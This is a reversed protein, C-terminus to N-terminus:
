YDVQDGQSDCDNEEHCGQDVAANAVAQIWEPM